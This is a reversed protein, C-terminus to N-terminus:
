VTLGISSCAVRGIVGVELEGADQLLVGPLDDERDSLLVPESMDRDCLALQDLSYLIGHLLNLLGKFFDKSSSSLGFGDWRRSIIRIRTSSTCFIVGFGLLFCSLWM